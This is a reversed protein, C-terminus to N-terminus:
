ITPVAQEVASETFEPADLTRQEQQAKHRADLDPAGDAAFGGLDLGEVVEEIPDGEAARHHLAAVRDLLLLLEFIGAQDGVRDHQGVDGVHGAHQRGHGLVLVWDSRAQNGVQAGVCALVDAAETM